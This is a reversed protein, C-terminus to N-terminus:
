APKCMLIIIPFVGMILGTACLFLNKACEDNKGFRFDKFASIAMGFCFLACFILFLDM